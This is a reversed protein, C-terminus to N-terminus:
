TKREFSFSQQVIIKELEGLIKSKDTLRVLTFGEIEMNYTSLTVTVIVDLDIRAGVAMRFTTEDSSGVFVVPVRKRTRMLKGVSDELCLGTQHLRTFSVIVRNAELSGYDSIRLRHSTKSELVRPFIGYAKPEFSGGVGHVPSGRGALSLANATLEQNPSQAVANLYSEASVVGDLDNRALLQKAVGIAGSHDLGCGVSERSHTADAEGSAHGEWGASDVVASDELELRGQEGRVDGLALRSLDRSIYVESRGKVVPDGLLLLQRECAFVLAAFRKLGVWDGPPVMGAVVSRLSGVPLDSVWQIDMEQFNDSVIRGIM